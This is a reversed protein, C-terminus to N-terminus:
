AKAKYLDLLDLLNKEINACIDDLPLHNMNQTSFPNQLEAGISDLALLPLAVLLTVVPTLFMYEMRQILAFPLATLFIVIFQRLTIAYARPMPTRLIRECGGLHDVLAAREKDAQLFAFRDMGLDAAFRLRNALEAAVFVAPHGAAAIRSATESDLLTAIRSMDREERLVSRAAHSFSAVWRVCRDQWIPDRPGYVLAATALNRSQNVIGGWLKRAEWWREYGANTRFVLLLSLAAGGWEFPGIEIGITPVTVWELFCVIVAILVFVLSQLFIRRMHVLALRDRPFVDNWFSGFRNPSPNTMTVRKM